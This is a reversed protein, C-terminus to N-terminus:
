NKSWDLKQGCYCVKLHEWHKYYGDGLSDSLEANCSPCKAADWSRIIPKKPIQKETANKMIQFAELIEGCNELNHIPIKSIIEIAQQETMSEKNEKLDKIDFVIGRCYSGEDEYIMFTEHPIDTKYAWTILSGDADRIEDDCWLAEICRSNPFEESSVDTESVYVKGGNFCDAEDRIAGDFQMLDDSAGYVIVFGNDQAIQIEGKTFQPYGYVKGNLMKAFEKIEM